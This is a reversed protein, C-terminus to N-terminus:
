ASSCRIGLANRVDQLYMAHAADRPTCTIARVTPAEVSLTVVLGGAPYAEELYQPWEVVTVVGPAGFYEEFGLAGVDRAGQLRYADIHNLELRGRYQCHLVFTPSTVPEAEPIALGRALGRTLCTKGAGLDGELLFVEGGRCAHGLAAGLALTEAESGSRLSFAEGPM